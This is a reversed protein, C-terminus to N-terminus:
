GAPRQHSGRMKGMQERMQQRAARREDRTVQGDKNADTKDFHALAASALEAQTVSGDKDADAMHMLMMGMREGGGRRGM